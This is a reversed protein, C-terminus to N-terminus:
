RERPLSRRKFAQFIDMARVQSKRRTLAALALYCVHSEWPFTLQRYSEYPKWRKEGPETVIWTWLKIEDLALFLDLATVLTEIIFEDSLADRAQQQKALWKLDFQVMAVWRRRFSITQLLTVAENRGFM